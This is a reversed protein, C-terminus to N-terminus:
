CRRLYRSSRSLTAPRRLRLSSVHESDLPPAAIVARLRRGVLHGEASPTVPPEVLNALNLADIVFHIDHGGPQRRSWEMPRCPRLGIYRRHSAPLRRRSRMSLLRWRRATYVLADAQLRRPMVAIAVVADCCRRHHCSSSM